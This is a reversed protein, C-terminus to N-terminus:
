MDLLLEMNHLVIHYPQNCGQNPLLYSLNNTEFNYKNVVSFHWAIRHTKGDNLRLMADETEEGDVWEGDITMRSNRATESVMEISLLKGTLKQVDCTLRYRVNNAFVTHDIRLGSAESGSSQLWYTTGDTKQLAGHYSSVYDGIQPNNELYQAM